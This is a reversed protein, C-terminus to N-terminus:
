RPAARTGYPLSGNLSGRMGCYSACSGGGDSWRMRGGERRVVLRCLRGDPGASRERLLLAGRSLKAKGEITCSHGNPFHSTLSIRAQRRGIAEIELVDEALYFSGEPDLM